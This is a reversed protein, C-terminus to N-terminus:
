WGDEKTGQHVFPGAEPASSAPGLREGLHQSHDGHHAAKLLPSGLRHPIGLRPPM